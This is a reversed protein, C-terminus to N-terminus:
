QLLKRLSEIESPAAEAPDKATELVINTTTGDFVSLDDMLKRARRQADPEADFCIYRNPVRSLLELRAPTAAQGCLAVAGPGIAWCDLPGECVICASRVYDYGYLLDSIPIASEEDRAALYKPKRKGVARTTWSVMEGRFFIPIFLRWALQGGDFEIGRVSWIREVDDTEFGRSKLYANHYGHTWLRKDSLGDPLKLRGQVRISRYPTEPLSEIIEKVQQVSVGLATLTLHLKHPGCNWCNVFRGALNYGMDRDHECFPCRFNIWGHHTKPGSTFYQVHYQNLIDVFDMDSGKSEYTM